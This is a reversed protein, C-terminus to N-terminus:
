YGRERDVLNRLPEGACFRRLNDAVLELVACEYGPAFGAIHPTVIVDPHSWLPHAAPLPEEAFVDLAAGGLSGADLAALLAAEDIVGGRSVDVVVAGAPLRGLVDASVLGRTETTLPTVVVLWDCRAAVEALQDSGVVEVGDQDRAVGSRNVGIVHIGFARAVRGVERGIRGYGVIGMTTGPLARPVYRDWRESPIPWERRQQGAILERLHHSFAIVMMMVHESMPVPSVGGITTIEVSSDWIPHGALHDVGSTDLQVWRLRPATVADPVVASTHLVEVEAWTSSDIDAVDAATHQVIEVGPAAVRLRELWDATFSFTSLYRIPM